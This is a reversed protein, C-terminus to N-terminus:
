DRRAAIAEAAEAAVERVDANPDEAALAALRAREGEGGVHGLLYAADGRAVPDAGALLPLLAAAARERGGPDVQALEEVLATAGLRVSIRSDGLVEGLLAYLDPDGRYLPVLLDLLGRDLFDAVQAAGIEGRGM